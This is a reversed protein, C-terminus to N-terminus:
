PRMVAGAVKNQARSWVVLVTKSQYLWQYAAKLSKIGCCYSLVGRLHLSYRFELETSFQRSLFNRVVWLRNQLIAFNFFMLPCGLHFIPRKLWFTKLLISAWGGVLQHLGMTQVLMLSVLVSWFRALFSILYKWNEKIQSRVNLFKWPCIKAIFLSSTWLLAKIWKM